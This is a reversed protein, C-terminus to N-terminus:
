HMFQSLKFLKESQFKIGIYRIVTEIFCIIISLIQFSIIFFLSSKMWDKRTYFYVDNFCSIYVWSFIFIINSIIIFIIINKDIKRILAIVERKIKRVNNKGRIFIGKLKKEEIFFCDIIQNLIQVIFFTYILRPISRPIFSFFNENNIHYLETLYEVNYILGNILCCFIINLLFVIIKISKPKINDTILFSKIILQREKITERFYEFFTRKDKEIVNEFDLDNPDTSLYENFYNNNKNVKLIHNKSLSDNKSLIKDKIINNSDSDHNNNNNHINQIIIQNEFKTYYTVNNNNKKKKIKSNSEIISTINKVSSSSNGNFQSKKNKDKEFYINNRNEKKPPENNLKSKLSKIYSTSLNYIYIKLKYKSKLFYVLVCLIQFLFIVMIIFGWYM